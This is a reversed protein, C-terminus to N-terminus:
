NDTHTQIHTNTYTHKYTHTQIHTCVELQHTQLKAMYSSTEHLDIGESVALYSMNEPNLYVTKLWTPYQADPMNTQATTWQSLVLYGVGPIYILIGARNYIPAYRIFGNKVPMVADTITRFVKNNSRTKNTEVDLLEVQESDRARTFSVTSTFRTIKNKKPDIYLCV